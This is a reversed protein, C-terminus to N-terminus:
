PMQALQIAPQGRDEHGFRRLPDHLPAPRTRSSATRWRYGQHMNGPRNSTHRLQALTSHLWAATAIQITLPQVMIHPIVPIYERPLGISAMEKFRAAAD